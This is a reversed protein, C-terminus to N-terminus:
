VRVGKDNLYTQLAKVTAKDMEGTVEVSLYTQLAKATLPGLVGDVVLPQPESKPLKACWCDAVRGRMSDEYCWWGSHKSYVRKGSTNKHYSSRNSSDKLYFWHKGNIVKYGCFGIYHGGATWQTGDPGKKSSFLFVGVSAGNNCRKFIESMPNSQARYVEKLGYHKLGETIGVRKTGDGCTAYQVMYKRVDAPTLDKNKEIEIIAHTVACCGCGSGGMTYGKRPYPLKAWRPDTQRYFNSNM